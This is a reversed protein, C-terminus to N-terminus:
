LMKVRKGRGKAVVDHEECWFVEGARAYGEGRVRKRFLPIMAADDRPCRPRSKNPM